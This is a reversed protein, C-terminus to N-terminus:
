RAKGAHVTDAARRLLSLAMELLDRQEGLERIRRETRWRFRGAGSGQWRLDKTAHRVDLVIDDIRRMEIRIQREAEHWVTADDSRPKATMVGTHSPSVRM